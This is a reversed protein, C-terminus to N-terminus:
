SSVLAQSPGLKSGAQARACNPSPSLAWSEKRNCERVGCKGNEMKCVMKVSATGDHVWVCDCMLVRAHTPERPLAFLQSPM